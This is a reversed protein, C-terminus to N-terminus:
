KAATIRVCHDWGGEFSQGCEWGATIWGYAHRIGTTQNRASFYLFILPKLIPM